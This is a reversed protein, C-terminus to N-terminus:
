SAQTQSPRSGADVPFWCPFSEAFRAAEAPEADLVERLNDRMSLERAVMARKHPLERHLRQFWKRSEGFRRKLACVLGLNFYVMKFRPQSDVLGGDVLQQFLASAEDMNGLDLHVNGLNLLAFSRMGADDTGELVEELDDIADEHREQVHHVMGLYIRAEHFSPSLLVCERLFREGKALNRAPTGLSSGDFLEKARVWEGAADVAAADPAGSESALAEVECILNRGKQAMDPVPVPESGVVKSFKPSLGMLIFGRGLEYLIRALVKRNEMLQRRLEELKESSGRGDEVFAGDRLVGADTLERHARAQERIGSLFERCSGCVDSHVMVRRVLTPALEGDVMASLDAQIQLCPDRNLRTPSSM